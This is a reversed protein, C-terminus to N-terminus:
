TRAGHRHADPTNRPEERAPADAPGTSANAAGCPAASGVAVPEENTIVHWAMKALLRVLQAQTNSSFAAYSTV